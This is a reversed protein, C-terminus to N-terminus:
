AHCMCKLPMMGNHHPMVILRVRRGNATLRSGITALHLGNAYWQCPMGDVDHQMHMAHLQTQVNSNLPMAHHPTWHCPM